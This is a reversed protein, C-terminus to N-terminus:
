WHGVLSLRRWISVMSSRGSPNPPGLSGTSSPSEAIMELGRQNEHYKLEPYSEQTALTGAKGPEAEPDHSRQPSHRYLPISSPHLENPPIAMRNNFLVLLTTTYLKGLIVGTVQHLGNHQTLFFIFDIMAALATVTGTEVTLRVLRNLINNMPGVARERSKLLYYTMSCAIVTDVLASGCLRIPVSRVQGAGRDSDGPSIFVFFAAAGGGGLQLLALFIILGFVYLSKSLIWIRWGFFVQVTAAVMSPFIIVNLYTTNLRCLLENDGWGNVFWQFADYTASCTQSWEIVYLGYVLCKIFRRDKPFTQFYLYVQM